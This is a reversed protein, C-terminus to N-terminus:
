AASDQEPVNQSTVPLRGLSLEARWREAQESDDAKSVRRVGVASEANAPTSWTGILTEGDSDEYSFIHTIATTPVEADAQDADSLPAPSETELPARHLVPTAGPPLDYVVISPEAPEKSSRLEEPFLAALTRVASVRTAWDPQGNTKTAMLAGRLTELPGVDGSPEGHGTSLSWADPYAPDSPAPRYENEGIAVEGRAHAEAAQTKKIRVSLTSPACPIEAAASRLSAGAAIKERAAAVQEESIRQEFRGMSHHYGRRVIAFTRFQM